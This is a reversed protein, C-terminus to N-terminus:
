SRHRRGNRRYRVPRGHDTDVGDNAPDFVMALACDECGDMDADSCVSPDNPDSDDANPVGDGDTDNASDVTIITPDDAAPTAPDDSDTGYGGDAALTAQNTILQGAAIPADVQVQFTITVPTGVALSGVTATIVGGAEAVTVAAPVASESGPVFTVNTTPVTDTVTVNQAPASGSNTAVISFTVIEGAELTGGNDDSGVKTFAIVPAAPDLVQTTVGDLAEDIGNVGNNDSLDIAATLMVGSGGALSNYMGLTATANVPPDTIGQDATLSFQLTASDGNNLCGVIPLVLQTPRCWCPPKTWNTPPPTAMM